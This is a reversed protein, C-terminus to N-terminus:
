SQALLAALPTAVKALVKDHKGHETRFATAQSRATARMALVVSHHEREQQERLQAIVRRYESLPLEELTEQSESADFVFRPEGDVDYAFTAGCETCALPAPTDMPDTQPTLAAAVRHVAHQAAGRGICWKEAAARISLPHGGALGTHLAFVLLDPISVSQALEGLHEDLQDLAIPTQAERTALTDGLTASGDDSTPTELSVARGARVIRVTDATVNARAAVEEHSPSRGLEDTLERIAMDVRPKAAFTNYTMGQYAAEGGHVSRRIRGSIYREAFTALTAKSPDWGTVPRVTGDEDIESQGVLDADLGVFAEWLGLLAAQLHDQSAAGGIMYPRAAKAALPTNLTAFDNKIRELEIQAARLRSQDQEEQAAAREASAKLFRVRLEENRGRYDTVEITEVAEDATSPAGSKATASANDTM